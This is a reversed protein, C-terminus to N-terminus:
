VLSMRSEVVVGLFQCSDNIEIPKYNPNLPKLYATNTGQDVLFQKFTAEKAGEIKAIVLDGSEPTRHADVLIMSKEPVCLGTPSTMLDDKVSLWFGDDNEIFFGTAFWKFKPPNEEVLSKWNQINDWDILPYDQRFVSTILRKQSKSAEDGHQLWLHDVNLTKALTKMMAPRPFAEGSLWKSVAKSSVGLARALKIGRGHAPYNADSLAKSLRQSFEQRITESQVM